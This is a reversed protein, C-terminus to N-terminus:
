KISISGEGWSLPEGALSSPSWACFPSSEHVEVMASMLIIATDIQM